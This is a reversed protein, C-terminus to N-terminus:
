FIGFLLFNVQYNKNQFLYLFICKYLKVASVVNEKRKNSFATMKNKKIPVLYRKINEFDHACSINIKKLYFEYFM